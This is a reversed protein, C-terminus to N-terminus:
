GSLIIRGQPMEAIAAMLDATAPVSATSGCVVVLKYKDLVGCWARIDSNRKQTQTVRGDAFECMVRSMISLMQAKDKFHTAYKEDVLADWDITAADVGENEMYDCMRVLDRAVPLATVLNKINADAMLLRAAVVVREMNSIIDPGTDTDMFEPEDIGEGLAVLHPLIVARGARKVLAMEVSRLARRSPLFILMDRMDVGSTDMIHFLADMM